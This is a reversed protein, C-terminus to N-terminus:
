LEIQYDPNKIIEQFKANNRVPDWFPDLKLIEVNITFGTHKIIRELRELAQDYDGVMVLIRVMGTEPFTGGQADKTFDLIELAKNGADLADEKLGMGACAIGLAIYLRDDNKSKDIKKLITDRAISFNEKALDDNSNARYMLGLQLHKTDYSSQESFEIRPINKIIKIAEEYNRDLLELRARIQDLDSPDFSAKNNLIFDKAKKLQGSNIYLDTLDGYSASNSPNLDVVKKKSKEADIYNRLVMYTNAANGWKDWDSPDLSIAYNNYELSKRFEGMRRYLYGIWLYIEPDELYEAKLEEL